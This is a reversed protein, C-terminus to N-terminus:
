GGAVALERPRIRAAPDSLLEEFALEAAGLIPADEGLRGPVVRLQERSAPLSRETLVREVTAGVLPHIREFVGGLVVLSPNFVNVLTALGIGLWTAVEELAARAAEEGRAAAEVLERMAERGGEFDRGARLLIAREGIETEWCGRSGCACAQGDPNVVMHGVEAAYGAGGVLPAGGITVNGGVGVEGMVYVVDEVDVAAGRRNEALGGLDAENAVWLPADLALADALMDGLPVDRWGLNPAHRVVGDSRRVIGAVAVGIGVLAESRRVEDLAPRALALLDAVVETADVHARPRDARDLRHIAGGLGVIAVALSDVNTELALVVAEESRPRVLPSPRGPTGAPASREEAVLDAAVLEGILGRIASRTLGTRLVLESRSQPGHLHLERVIASLNARRVTESRQGIADRSTM